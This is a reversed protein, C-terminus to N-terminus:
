SQACQHAHLSHRVSRRLLAVTESFIESVPLGSKGLRLFKFGSPKLGGTGNETKLSTISAPRQGKYKELAPKPDFTDVQSPGGNMYLHIIRKARPRFHPAKPALPNTSHASAALAGQQALLGALGLMGMGTGCQALMARRSLENDFLQKM